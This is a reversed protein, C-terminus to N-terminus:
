WEGERAISRYDVIDELTNYNFELQGSAQISLRALNKLAVERAIEASQLAAEWHPILRDALYIVEGM